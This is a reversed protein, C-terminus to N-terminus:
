VHARGIETVGAAGSVAIVISVGVASGFTRFTTNTGSAAAYKDIEVGVLSSATLNSWAFGLSVGYLASFWVYGTWFNPTGNMTFYFGVGAVIIGVLGAAVTRKMREPRFRRGVITATLFMTLPTPIIALGSKLVSWGWVTQFFVPTAFWFGSVPMNFLLTTVSAGSFSRRRFLSLDILPEPHVKSRLVVLVFVVLSGIFCGLVPASTWGWTHGELVGLILAALALTGLPVSVVSRFLM